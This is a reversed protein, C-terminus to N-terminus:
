SSIGNAVVLVEFILLPVKGMDKVVELILRYLYMNKRSTTTGPM